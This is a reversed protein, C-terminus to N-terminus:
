ARAAVREMIEGALRENDPFGPLPPFWLVTQRGDLTLDMEIHRNGRRLEIGYARLQNSSIAIVAEFVIEVRRGLLRTVRRMPVVLLQSPAVGVGFGADPHMPGAISAGIGATLLRGLGALPKERRVAYAVPGLAEGHPLRAQFFGRLEQEGQWV